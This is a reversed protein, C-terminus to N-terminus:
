GASPAFLELMAEVQDRTFTAVIGVDGQNRVVLEQSVVWVAEESTSATVPQMAVNGDPHALMVLFVPLTPM